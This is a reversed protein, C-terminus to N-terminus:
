RNIAWSGVVLKQLLQTPIRSDEKRYTPILAKQYECPLTPYDFYKRLPDNEESTLVAPSLVM